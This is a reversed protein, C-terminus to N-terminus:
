NNHTEVSASQYWIYSNAYVSKLKIKKNGHIDYPLKQMNPHCGSNVWGQVNSLMIFQSFLVNQIFVYHYNSENM